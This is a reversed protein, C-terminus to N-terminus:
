EAACCALTPLPIYHKKADQSRIIALMGSRQVATYGDEGLAQKLLHIAEEKDVLEDEWLDIPRDIEVNPEVEIPLQAADQLYSLVKRLPADRFNLRLGIGLPAGDRLPEAQGMSPISKSNNMNKYVSFNGIQKLRLPM